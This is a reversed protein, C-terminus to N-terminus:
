FAQFMQIGAGLQDAAKALAPYHSIYPYINTIGMVNDISTGVVFRQATASSHQTINNLSKGANHVLYGEYDVRIVYKESFKKNTFSLYPLAKYEVHPGATNKVLGKRFSLGYVLNNVDDFSYSKQNYFRIEGDTTDSDITAQTTPLIYDVATFVDKSILNGTMRLRLDLESFKDDTGGPADNLEFRPNIGFTVRKNYQYNLGISNYFAVDKTKSSDGVVVEQAEGFWNTSVKDMFKLKKQKVTTNSTTQSHASGVVVLAALAIIKKM